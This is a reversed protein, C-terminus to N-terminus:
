MAADPVAGLIPGPMCINWGCGTNRCDEDVLDEQPYYFNPELTVRPDSEEQPVKTPGLHVGYNKAGTQLMFRKPTISAIKMAELFNSLLASNM